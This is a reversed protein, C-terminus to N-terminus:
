SLPSSEIQVTIDFSFDNVGWILPDINLTLEYVRQRNIGIPNTNEVYSFSLFTEASAPEWSSTTMNVIVIPVVYENRIYIPVTVNGGPELAGWSISEIPNTAFKDFYFGVTIDGEIIIGTTGITYTTPPQTLFYTLTASSFLFVLGVPVVIAAFIERIKIFSFGLILLSALSISIFVWFIM